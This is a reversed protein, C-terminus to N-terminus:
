QYLEVNGGIASEPVLGAFEAQVHSSDAPVTMFFRAIALVKATVKTGAPVPCQLLPINLVRTNRFTKYAANGGTARYPTASPYTAKASPPVLAGPPSPPPYLTSWDSTSYTSYGAAPEVGGNSVYSAYKAAKAYSWLPGYDIGNTGAPPSAPDAVTQLIGGTTTSKATQGSPTNTMWNVGGNFTFSTVNADAPASTSTCPSVYTGFRSNLQGFLSGIPFSREVTILGGSVSPMALSGNCVFPKVSNLNGIISSGITGPPAIPNVLFNEPTAANPNLQMLDYAVGRRFGYEVLEGSRSQAATNSNACVALPTINITSRGAVARGVVNTEAFDPSLVSIFANTVRGHSADLGSTDVMVFFVSSASGDASAADMWGGTGGDPATGFKIASNSWSVAANNYSYGFGSATSAADTQAKAIGAPTGDLARVAALAAADALSQLEVKRNFSRSLDLAFGFLALLVVLVGAMM